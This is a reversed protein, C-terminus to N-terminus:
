PLYIMCPDQPYPEHKDMEMDSTHVHCTGLHTSTATTEFKAGRNTTATSSNFIASPNAMVSVLAPPAHHILPYISPCELFEWLMPSGSGYAQNFSFSIHIPFPSTKRMKKPYNKPANGSYITPSNSATQTQPGPKTKHNNSQKKKRMGCYTTVPEGIILLLLALAIADCCDYLVYLQGKCNSTLNHNKIVWWKNLSMQCMFWCSSYPM